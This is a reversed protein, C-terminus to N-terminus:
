GDTQLASSTGQESPRVQENGYCVMGYWVMGDTDMWGYVGMWIYVDTDMWENGDMRIWGDTDMWGYGDM